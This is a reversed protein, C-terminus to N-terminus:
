RWAKDYYTEQRIRTRQVEKWFSSLSVKRSSITTYKGLFIVTLWKLDLVVDTVEIFKKVEADEVKQGLSKMEDEDAVVVLIEDLPVTTWNRGSFKTMARSGTNTQQQMSKLKEVM